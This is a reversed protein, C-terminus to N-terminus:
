KPSASQRNNCMKSYLLYFYDWVMYDKLNLQIPSSHWHRWFIHNLQPAAQQMILLTDRYEGPTRLKNEPACERIGFGHQQIWWVVQRGSQVAASFICGPLALRKHLHLYKRNTIFHHHWDLRWFGKKFNRPKGIGFILCNGNLVYPSVVQFSCMIHDIWCQQAYLKTVTKSSLRAILNYKTSLHRTKVMKTPPHVTVDGANSRLTLSEWQQVTHHAKYYSCMWWKQGRGRRTVWKWCM